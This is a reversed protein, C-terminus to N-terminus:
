SSRSIIKRVRSEPINTIKSIEKPDRIRMKEVVYRVASEEALLRLKRVISSPIFVGKFKILDEIGDLITVAIYRRMLKEQEIIRELIKDWNLPSKRGRIILEVDTLDKLRETSLKLIM